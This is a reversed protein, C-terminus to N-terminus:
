STRDNYGTREKEKYNYCLKGKFVIKTKSDIIISQNTGTVGILEKQSKKKQKLLFNM